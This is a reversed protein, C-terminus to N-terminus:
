CDSNWGKLILSKFRLRNNQMISKTRKYYTQRPKVQSDSLQVTPIGVLPVRIFRVIERFRADQRDWNGGIPILYQDGIRAFTENCKAYSFVAM